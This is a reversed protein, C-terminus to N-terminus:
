AIEVVRIIGELAHAPQDRNLGAIISAMYFLNVGKKILEGYLKYALLVSSIPRVENIEIIGYAQQRKRGLVKDVLNKLEDIISKMSQIIIKTEGNEVLATYYDELVLVTKDIEETTAYSANAASEFMGILGVMRFTNIIALRGSNREVRELTDNDWLNINTDVELSLPKAPFVTSSIPSIGDDIDNMSNSQDKGINAIRTYLSFAGTNRTSLLISQLYGLPQGPNLLLAAYKDVERISRDIKRAFNRTEKVLGTIKKIDDSIGLADTLSTLFNNSTKPEIYEKKFSKELVAMAKISKSAVDQESIESDIPSPRDISSSFKISASLKGLSKQDSLFSAPHAKINDFIGFTPLYLRGPAPDQIAKKFSEFKEKANDGHFFLDVTAEFPNEGMPELYQVSSKPYTHVVLAQGVNDLSEKHILFPINKYKGQLQSDTFESM